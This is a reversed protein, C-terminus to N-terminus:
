EYFTAVYVNLVFIRVSKEDTELLSLCARSLGVLGVHRSDACHSYHVGIPFSGFETVPEDRLHV